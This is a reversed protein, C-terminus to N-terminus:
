QSVVWVCFGAKELRQLMAEANVKKSYAGVQVKYINSTDKVSEKEEIVKGLIGEAISQAMTKYKYLKIDDADDVLCCEILMAPAKVSKLVALDCLYKLGRNGYGLAEIKKLVRQAYATAKSSSSYLLIETGTTKGNGAKDGAGTNFHISVDLDVTKSNSKNIIKALVNSQSTGDEVTCDHVTHGDAKLLRIVEDKVKRVETSEKILGVAGCAVKGDPNHGAHVNMKM